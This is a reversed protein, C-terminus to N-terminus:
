RGTLLQRGPNETVWQIPGRVYEQEPDEPDIVPASFTLKNYCSLTRLSQPATQRRVYHSQQQDSCIFFMSIVCLMSMLQDASKNVTGAGIHQEMLSM